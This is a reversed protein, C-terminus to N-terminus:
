NVEFSNLSVLIETININLLFSLYMFLYVANGNMLLTLIVTQRSESQSAPICYFPKICRYNWTVKIVTRYSHAAKISACLGVCLKFGCIFVM